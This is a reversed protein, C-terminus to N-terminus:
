NDAKPRIKDFSVNSMMVEQNLASWQDYLIMFGEKTYEM